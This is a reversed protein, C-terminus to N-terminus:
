YFTSNAEGFIYQGNSKSVPTVAGASFSPSALLQALGEYGTPASELLANLAATQQVYQSRTQGETNSLGGFESMIDLINRVFKYGTGMKEQKTNTASALKDLMSLADKARQSSTFYRQTDTSLTTPVEGFKIKEPDPFTKSDYLYLKSAVTRQDEPSLYPVLANLMTPLTNEEDLKSPILGKWWDPANPATLNNSWAANPTNSGGGGGEGSGGVIWYKGTQPNTWYTWGGVNTYNSPNTWDESGTASVPSALNTKEISSSKKTSFTNSITPLKSSGGFTWDTLKAM